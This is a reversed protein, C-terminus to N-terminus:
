SKIGHSKIQLDRLLSVGRLAEEVSAVLELSTGGEYGLSYIKRLLAALDFDGDWWRYSRLFGSATQWVKGCHGPVCLSSCQVINKCHLHLLYPLLQELNERSQLQGFSIVENLPDWTLGVKDLKNKLIFNVILAPNGFEYSPSAGAINEIGIVLSSNSISEKFSEILHLLLETDEESSLSSPVIYMNLLPTRCVDILRSLCKVEHLTELWPKTRQILYSVVSLTLNRDVLLENVFYPDSNSDIMQGFSIEAESIKAERLLDLYTELSNFLPGNALISIKSRNRSSVQEIIM